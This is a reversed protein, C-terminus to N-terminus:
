YHASSHSYGASSNLLWLKGHCPLLAAPFFSLCARPSSRPISPCVRTGACVGLLGQQLWTGGNNQYPLLIFFYQRHLDM